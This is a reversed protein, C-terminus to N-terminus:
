RIVIDELIAERAFENLNRIISEKRMLLDNRVVSSSISVHLVHKKMYITHTYAAIDSGLLEHWGRIIRIELISEKLKPNDAFFDGIIEQLSQLNDRKTM